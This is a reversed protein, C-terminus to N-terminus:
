IISLYCLAIRTLRAIVLKCTCCSIFKTLVLILVIVHISPPSHLRDIQHNFFYILHNLRSSHLSSASYIVVIYTMFVAYLLALLWCGLM